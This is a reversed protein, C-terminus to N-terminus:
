GRRCSRARKRVDAITARGSVKLGDSYVRVLKGCVLVRRPRGHSSGIRAFALAKNLHSNPFSWCEGISRGRAKLTCVKIM